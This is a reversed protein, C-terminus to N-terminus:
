IIDSENIKAEVLNIMDDVPVGLYNCRGVLERKIGSNLFLDFTYGKYEQKMAYYKNMIYEAEHQVEDSELNTYDDESTYNELKQTIEELQKELGIKELEYDQIQNTLNTIKEELRIQEVKLEKKTNNHDKLFYNIMDRINYGSQKILNEQTETVRVSMVKNHTQKLSM